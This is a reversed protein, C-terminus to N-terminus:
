ANTLREFGQEVDWLHHVPDHLAYRGISEVTFSSGDSRMGTRDWEDRSVRDYINAFNGAAVALAYAVKDPDESAYDSSLATEDQNWNDFTPADKKLMLEVRKTFLEYVDRVHAGYELASWIPGDPGDPPRQHVIDGSSLVKRWDAANVRVQAAIDSRDISSSNFGCEPCVEDLVWTWNKDDPKPQEM